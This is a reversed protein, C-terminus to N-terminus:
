QFLIYKILNFLQMYLILHTFVLLWVPHSLQQRGRNWNNHRQWRYNNSGVNNANGSSVRYGATKTLLVTRQHIMKHWFAIRDATSKLSCCCETELGWVGSAFWPNLWWSCIVTFSSYTILFKTIRFIPSNLYNGVEQVM